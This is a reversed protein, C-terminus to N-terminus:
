AGKRSNLVNQIEAKYGTALNLKPSTLAITLQDDPLDAWKRGTFECNPVPCVTYDPNDFPTPDNDKQNANPATSFAPMQVTEPVTRAPESVRPESNYVDDMEEPAYIGAVAGPCLMRVARTICRARLQSAPDKTWNSGPIIYGAEKAEAYTFSIEKNKNIGFSWKGIAATNDWQLWEVTGGQAMFEALMRDARMTIKGRNDIHYRRQFELLSMREQVCTTAIVMGAAPTKVGMMGSMCIVNGLEALDSMGQLPLKEAIAYTQRVAIEQTESM